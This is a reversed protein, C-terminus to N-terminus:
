YLPSNKSVRAFRCISRFHQVRRVPKAQPLKLGLGNQIFQTALQQLDLHFHQRLARSAPGHAVGELNPEATM